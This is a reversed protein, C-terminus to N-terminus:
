AFTHYEIRTNGLSIKGVFFTEPDVETQSRIESQWPWTNKAGMDCLCSRAGGSGIWALSGDMRQQPSPRLREIWMVWVMLIFLLLLLM